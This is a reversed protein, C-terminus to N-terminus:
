LSVIKSAAIKLVDDKNYYPNPNARCYYKLERMVTYLRKNEIEPFAACVDQFSCPLPYEELMFIIDEYKKTVYEEIKDYGIHIFNKSVKEFQSSYRNLLVEAKIPINYKCLLEQLIEKKRYAPLSANQRFSWSVVIDNRCECSIIAKEIMNLKKLWVLGERLLKEVCLLWDDGNDPRCKSIAGQYWLGIRIKRNQSNNESSQHGFETRFDHVTNKIFKMLVDKSEEGQLLHTFDALLDINVLGNDYYIGYFFFILLYFTFESDNKILMDKHPMGKSFFHEGFPCVQEGKPQAVILPKVEARYVDDIDNILSFIDDLLQGVASM